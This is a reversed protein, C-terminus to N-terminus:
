FFTVIVPFTGTYNGVAQNSNANLTGGVTFTLTGSADLVELGQGISSTIKTVRMTASGNSITTNNAILVLFRQGSQGSLAFQAPGRTGPQAIASATGLSGSTTMAGNTAITLTGSAQPQAIAGFRLDEVAVVQLPLAVQASASGSTTSTSAPGAVAPTALGLGILGLALGAVKASVRM